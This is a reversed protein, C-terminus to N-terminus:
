WETALVHVTVGKSLGRTSVQPAAAAPHLCTADGVCVQAAATSSLRLARGAPHARSPQRRRGAAFASSGSHLASSTSVAAAPVPAMTASTAFAPACHPAPSALLLEEGEWAATATPSLRNPGRPAQQLNCPKSAHGCDLLNILGRGLGGPVWGLRSVVLTRQAEQQPRWRTEFCNSATHM